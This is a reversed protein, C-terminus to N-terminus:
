LAEKLSISLVPGWLGTKKTPEESGSHIWGLGATASFTHKAAIFVTASLLACFLFAPFRV